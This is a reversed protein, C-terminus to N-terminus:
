DNRVLLMVYIAFARRDRRPSQDFETIAGMAEEIHQIAAEKSFKAAPDYDARHRNLQMNVFTEAFNQIEVPFKAVEATRQCHNRATGHQLARYTQRWAPHHRDAGAM